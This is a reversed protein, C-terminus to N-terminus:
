FLNALGSDEQAGALVRQAVMDGAMLVLVFGAGPAQGLLPDRRWAGPRRRNRRPEANSRGRRVASLVGEAERRSGSAGSWAARCLGNSPCAGLGAVPNQSAGDPRAHTQVDMSVGLEEM